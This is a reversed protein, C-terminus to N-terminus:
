GQVQDGDPVARNLNARFVVMGGLEVVFNGTSLAVTGDENTTLILEFYCDADVTLRELAM